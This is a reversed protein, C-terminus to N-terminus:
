LAVSTCVSYLALLVTVPMATPKATSSPKSLTSSLTDFYRRSLIGAVSDGASSLRVMRFTSM